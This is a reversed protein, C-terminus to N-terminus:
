VLHGTGKIKQCSFCDWALLKTLSTRHSTQTQTQTKNHPFSIRISPRISPRVFLTVIDGGIKSASPYYNLMMLM